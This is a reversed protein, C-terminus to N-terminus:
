NNMFQRIARQIFLINQLPLKDLEEMIEGLVKQRTQFDEFILLESPTVSLRAALTYLIGVSFNRKGAEIEGLYRTSIGISDALQSQSLNQSNRLYRIKEGLSKLERAEKDETKM